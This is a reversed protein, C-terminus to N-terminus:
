PKKAKPDPKAEAPKEGPKAEAPKKEPPKPPPKAVVGLERMHDACLRDPAAPKERTWTDSSKWWDQLAKEDDEIAVHKVEFAVPEMKTEYGKCEKDGTSPDTVVNCERYTRQIKLSEIKKIKAGTKFDTEVQKGRADKVPSGDSAKFAKHKTIYKVPIEDVVIVGLENGEVYNYKFVVKTGLVRDYKFLWVGLQPEKDKITVLSKLEWDFDGPTKVEKPESFAAAELVADAETGKKAEARIQYQYLTKPQIAGDKDLILGTKKPAAPTTGAKPAATDAVDIFELTYFKPDVTAWAGGASPKRQLEVSELQAPRDENLGDTRQQVPVIDFKITAGEQTASLATISLRPPHYAIRGKKTETAAVTAKVQEATVVIKPKFTGAYAHIEGPKVLAEWKTKVKQKDIKALYDDQKKRYAPNEEEFKQIAEQAATNAEEDHPTGYAFAGFGVLVAAAAGLGIKEGHKFFFGGSSKEKAM